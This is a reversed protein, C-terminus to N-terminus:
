NIPIRIKLVQSVEKRHMWETIRQTAGEMPHKAWKGAM